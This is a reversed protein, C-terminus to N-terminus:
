EFAIDQLEKVFDIIRNLVEEDESSSNLCVAVTVNSDPYNMLFSMYGETGGNHAIRFGQEKNEIEVGLGYWKSNTIEVKNNLMADYSLSSVLNMNVINEIFFLLDQTNSIIGGDGTGADSMAFDMIDIYGNGRDLYPRSIGNPLPNNWNGQTTNKLSIVDTIYLEVAEELSSNKVKEIILQLLVYNSNSYGYKENPEFDADENYIYGELKEIPTLLLRTTNLRDIQFKVDIYEKIGSTHMLLNKITVKDANEINNILEADLINKIPDELSLLGEEVLNMILVSTFIKSVSGILYRSSKETLVGNNIDVYGQNGIWVNGDISRVSVQVGPVIEELKEMANEFREKKPHSSSNDTFSLDSSYIESNIIPDKECSTLGLFLTVIVIIYTKM